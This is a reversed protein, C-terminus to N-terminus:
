PHFIFNDSKCVHPHTESNLDSEPVQEPLEKGREETLSSYADDELLEKREDEKSGLELIEQSNLTDIVVGVALGDIPEALEIAAAAKPVM